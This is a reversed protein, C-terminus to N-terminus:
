GREEVKTADGGVPDATAAAARVPTEYREGCFPCFTPIALAPGVRTRKVMKETNIHPLTYCSGDRGFGFTVGLKTNHPELKRDMEEICNCAM